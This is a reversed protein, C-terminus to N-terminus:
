LTSQWIPEDRAWLAAGDVQEELMDDALEPMRLCRFFTQVDEVSWGEVEAQRWRVGRLLFRGCGSSAARLRLSQRRM